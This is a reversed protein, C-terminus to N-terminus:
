NDTTLCDLAEKLDNPLDSTFKVMKGTKPHEFELSKAHLFLRGCWLRDFKLLKRPAYILDSVVPHGISKLHVRIQHTRGTRPFVALLSYERANLKLYNIGAKTLLKINNSGLRSSSLPFKEIRGAKGSESSSYVLQAFKEDSIKFLSNVEYDTRAERGEVRKVFPISGDPSFIRASRRNLVVGFKGFKGIRAIKSEINGEKEKLFGHVLAKYEKSVKREKFQNQLNEFAKQTKAVVLLGSTERDLRHVIGARNIFEFDSNRFEFGNQFNSNQIKFKNRIEHKTSRIQLYQEIQDQLTEEKITESRNVVLGAPKDVIVIQGDEFIVRLKGMPLMM